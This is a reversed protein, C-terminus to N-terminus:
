EDKWYYFFIFLCVKNKQKKIMFYGYIKHINTKKKYINGWSIDHIIKFFFIIDTYEQAFSFINYM